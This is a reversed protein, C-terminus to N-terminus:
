DVLGLESVLSAAADQIDKLPNQRCYNDVWAAIAASDTERLGNASVDYFSAASTFGLV